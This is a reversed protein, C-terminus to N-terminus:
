RKKPKFSYDTLESTSQYFGIEITDKVLGVQNVSWSTRKIATGGQTTNTVVKMAQFIGAPVEVEEMGAVQSSEKLAIGLMGKGEWQWEDGQVLPNKLLKRAPQFTVQQNSAPYAQRTTLVWGPTKSYWNLLPPTSSRTEVQYLTADGQKQQALVQITFQSRNGLSNTAQYKWWNGVQLPFYDPSLPQQTVAIAVSTTALFLISFIAIKRIGIM